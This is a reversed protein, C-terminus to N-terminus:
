KAKGSWSGSYGTRPRNFIDYKTDMKAVGL